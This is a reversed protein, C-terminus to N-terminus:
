TSQCHKLIGNQILRDFHQLVQGPLPGGKIMVGLEMNLAMAYETLNASSLLLYDEDAVACKVHLSGTKQEANLPRQDLPWVFVKAENGDQDELMTFADFTIKGGSEHTSEGVFRFKVGRKIASGIAERILAAKYAAFTVILL